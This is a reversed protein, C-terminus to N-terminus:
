CNALPTSTEVGRPPPLSGPSRLKRGRNTPTTSIQLSKHDPPLVKDEGPAAPGRRQGSPCSGVRAPEMFRLWDAFLWHPQPKWVGSLQISGPSRRKRGRTTPTTSTHFSIWDPSPFMDGRPASGRRVIGLWDADPLPAPTEVGHPTTEVRPIVMEDGPQRAQLTLSPNKIRLHSGIM